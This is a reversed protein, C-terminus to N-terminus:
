GLGLSVPRAQAGSFGFTDRCLLMGLGVHLVNNSADNTAAQLRCRRLRQYRQAKILVNKLPEFSLAGPILCAHIRHQARESVRRGLGEMSRVREPLAPEAEM